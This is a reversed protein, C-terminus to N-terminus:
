KAVYIHKGLRRFRFEALAVSECRIHSAAETAMHYRGCIPSDTLSGTKCPEKEHSKDSKQTCKKQDM